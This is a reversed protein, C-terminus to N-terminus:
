SHGRCYARAFGCVDCWDSPSPQTEEVPATDHEVQTPLSVTPTTGAPTSGCNCTGLRVGCFGCYAVWRPDNYWSVVRAREPTYDPEV